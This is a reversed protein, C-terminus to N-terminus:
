KSVIAGNNRLENRLRDVDVEKLPINNKIALSAATGAAEGIALCTSMARILGFPYPEVSICRGSALLGEINRSVLCGYPIGVAHKSPMFKISKGSHIDINYGALAISDEPISLEDINAQTMTKIGTIRRSERAYVGNATNALFADKFGPCYKQFFKLLTLVQKHGEIEALNLSEPDTPDIDNIRTANVVVENKNPQKALIIRDRPIDFDGNRKAEEILEGFGTFYFSAAETFDEISYQMGSGYTDPTKFTDPNAQIYDLMEDLDVNGISFVLSVPQIHNSQKSGVSYEAGALYAAMGDGTADILAKCDVDYTWGRSHLQVSSVKGNDVRVEQLETSLFLEIGENKCMEGVVNRFLFPNVPTISNHLPCPIHGGLSGGIKELEQIIEDGIGGVVQTGERDYFALLPLGTSAVGGLFPNREVLLTRMGERASALAAPIGGPGGGVVVVDYQQLKKTQNM